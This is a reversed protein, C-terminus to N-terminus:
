AQQFHRRWYTIFSYIPFFLRVIFKTFFPDFDVIGILLKYMYIFNWIQIFFYLNSHPIKKKFRRLYLFSLLPVIHKDQFDFIVKFNLNNHIYRGLEQGFYATKRVALEKKRTNEIEKM